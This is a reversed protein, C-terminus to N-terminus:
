CTLSDVLQRALSGVLWRASSGVLRRPWIGCFGSRLPWFGSVLIWLNLSAFFHHSQASLFLATMSDSLATYLVRKVM